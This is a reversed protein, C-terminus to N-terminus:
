VGSFAPFFLLDVNASHNIKMDSFILKTVWRSRLLCLRLCTEESLHTLHYGIHDEPLYIYFILKSAWSFMMELGVMFSFNTYTSYKTQTMQDLNSLKFTCKSQINGKTYISFHATLYIPEYFTLIPLIKQTKIEKSLNPTIFLFCVEWGVSKFEQQEHGYDCVYM